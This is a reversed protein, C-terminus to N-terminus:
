KTTQFTKLYMKITKEVEKANKAEFLKIRLEKAGDWGSVYAKFHKKMIDFSKINKSARRLGSQASSPLFTKEFLRAHEVM